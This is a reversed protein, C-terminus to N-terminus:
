LQRLHLQRLFNLAYLKRHCTQLQLSRWLLDLLLLVLQLIVLPFTVLALHRQVLDVPVQHLPPLMQEANMFEVIVCSVVSLSLLSCQLGLM